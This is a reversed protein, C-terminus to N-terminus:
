WLSFILHLLEGVGARLNLPRYRFSPNNVHRSKGGIKKSLHHLIALPSEVGFFLSIIVFVTLSTSMFPSCSPTTWVDSAKLIALSFPSSRTRTAGAAFGGTALIM